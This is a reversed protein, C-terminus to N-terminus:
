SADLAQQKLSAMLQWPEDDLIERHWFYATDEAHEPSDCDIFRTPSLVWAGDAPMSAGTAKVKPDGKCKCHAAHRLACWTARHRADTSRIWMKECEVALHAGKHWRRSGDLARECWDNELTVASITMDGGEHQHHSLRRPVEVMPRTFTSHQRPRLHDFGATKRSEVDGTTPEDWKKLWSTQNCAVALGWWDAGPPNVISAQMDYPVVDDLDATQYDGNMPFVSGDALVPNAPPLSPLDWIPLRAIGAIVALREDARMQLHADITAQVAPPRPQPPAINALVARSRAAQRRAKRLALEAEAVKSVAHNIGRTAQQLQAAHPDTGAMQDYAALDHDTTTM